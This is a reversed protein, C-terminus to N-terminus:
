ILHFVQKVSTPSHGRYAFVLAREAVNYISPKKDSLESLTECPFAVCLISKVHGWNPGLFEHIHFAIITEEFVRSLTPPTRSLMGKMYYLNTIPAIAIFLNLKDNLSGHNEALASFM